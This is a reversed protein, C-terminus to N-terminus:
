NTSHGSHGSHADGSGHTAHEGHGGHENMMVTGEFTSFLAVVTQDMKAEAEGLRMALASATAAPVGMKELNAADKVADGTCLHVAWQGHKRALLARGGRGEQSWGAIAHDAEVVVPEIKLPADARDWEAKLVAEIAGRDDLAGHQMGGQGKLVPLVLDVKGAKEFELTVPVTTGEQYPEAVDMFMVHLGGPKLEVTAGAPIELGGEVPRMVMVDNVIEMTHIEMRGAKASSAAVLRDASAGKNTVIFFGGGAPQGPLMARVWGSTIELDGATVPQSKMDMGLSHGLGTFLSVVTLLAAAAFQLHFRHM